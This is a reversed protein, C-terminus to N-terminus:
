EFHVEVTRDANVTIECLPYPLAEVVTDCHGFEWHSFFNGDLPEPVLQLTTGRAVNVDCSDLPQGDASLECEFTEDTDSVLGGGGGENDITLTVLGGEVPLVEVTRQSDDQLGDDRTVVLRVTTAGPTDYVHDVEPGTADFTGDNEFDWQYRTYEPAQGAVFRGTEGVRISEPYEEIFAVFSRVVRVTHVVSSTGGQDDVITLRIPFEGLANADFRPRERTSDISGDDYFDWQLEVVEGDLDEVNIPRPSAGFGLRIPNEIVFDGSPLRNFQALCHRGRDLTVTTTPSLDDCQGSWRVFEFGADPVATLDIVTDLPRAITCPEDSCSANQIATGVASVRGEGRTSLSLTVPCGTPLGDEALGIVPRPEPRHGGRPFANGTGLQGEATDGFSWVSRCFDAISLSHRGGAAIGDSLPLTTVRAPVLQDMRGSGDTTRNASDSAQGFRNNGWAYVSRDAQRALSHILGGATEVVNFLNPPRFPQAVPKSRSGDGLQGSSSRGLSGVNGDFLVMLTHKAGVGIADVEPTFGIDIPRNRDDNGIDTGLQDDDTAGWGWVSGDDALALSFGDGAAIAIADVVLLDEVHKTANRDASGLALRGNSGWGRVDGDAQLGLSHHRGAAIATIGGIPDVDDLVIEPTILFNRDPVLNLDPQVQRLANDGWGAVTGDDLLALSHREGAAIAVAPRPLGVVRVPIARDIVSDDGLQGRDNLGWSWVDGNVDLALSHALGGAVEVIGESQPATDNPVVVVELNRVAADDPRLDPHVEIAVTYVGPETTTSTSVRLRVYDDISSTDLFVDADNPRAQPGPPSPEVYALDFTLDEGARSIADLDMVFSDGPALVIRDLPLNFIIEAGPDDDDDEDGNSGSEGCAVVFALAALSLLRALLWWAAAANPTETEHRLSFASYTM